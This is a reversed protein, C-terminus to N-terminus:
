KLIKRITELIDSIQFGLFETEIPLTSEIIKKLIMNSINIPLGEFSQNIYDLAEPPNLFFDGSIQVKNFIGNGIHLDVVILKGGPVKYEGHM